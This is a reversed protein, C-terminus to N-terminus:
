GSPYATCLPYEQGPSSYTDCSNLVSLPRSCVLRSLPIGSQIALLIKTNDLPHHYQMQISDLSTITSILLLLAIVNPAIFVVGRLRISPDWLSRQRSEPLRHIYEIPLTRPHYMMYQLSEDNDYLQCLIM